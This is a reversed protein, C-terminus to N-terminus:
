SEPFEELPRFYGKICSRNRICIQVHTKQLFGAGPYVPVGEQFLGKVSDFEPFESAEQLAHIYQVVICDRRRLLKDPGVQNEPLDDGYKQKAIMFAEGLLSIHDQQMFNLCHGMDIIAGIAYPDKIKSDPFAMREVAWSRARHLDNEWFYIGHGLWDYDNESAYLDSNGALVDEALARDCGHFGLVFSTNRTYLSM